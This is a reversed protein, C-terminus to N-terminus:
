FLWNSVTQQSVGLENAIAQQTMGRARMLRATARNDASARLRAEGSAKGAEAQNRAKSGGKAGQKAQWASYREPTFKSWTYKHVSRVIHKLESAHLPIRFEANLELARYNLTELWRESGKDWFGRIARYAYTRLFDFLTCNRGLGYELVKGRKPVFKELDPLWEALYGLDYFGPPGKYTKWLPHVPNKTILGAYGPDAQLKERMLGEIGALYRVPKEHVGHGEMLVPASLGWVLHAHGNERNVTSFNPSPLNADEWALGGSPRDVDFIAWVRSHPPNIQIYPKTLAQQISRIRLGVSLDDTCYPRHPLRDKHGFLDLLLQENQNTKCSSTHYFKM